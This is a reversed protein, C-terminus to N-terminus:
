GAIARDHHSLKMKRPLYTGNPNTLDIDLSDDTQNKVIDMIEKSDMKRIDGHKQSGEGPM